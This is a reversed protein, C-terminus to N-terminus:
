ADTEAPLRQHLVVRFCTGDGPKSTVEMLGGHKKIIGYSISLGLGTGQGVPKTTFFPDFIRSLNEPAIGRGDDAVEIWVKEGEVGTRVTIHGHEEIAQGANVLLNMFVQNLQAPYCEIDPIGAYEKTVDAKYKLENWVVNLTADIGKELNAVEREARDIHSLDKLDQVIRKVRQLGDDSENLLHVVDSRLYVLDIEEKLRALELRVNQPLLQESSENKDELRMLGNVYDRLTRLNSSIFGLPNNIEHAVGAALQGISAMKEAQLLQAHANALKEILQAQASKENELAFNADTLEVTREAVKQELERHAVALRLRMDNLAAILVGIEDKHPYDILKPKLDDSDIKLNAISQALDTLPQSLRWSIAWYFILWLGATKIISNILIVVFSYKVREVVVARDSYITMKGLEHQERLGSQASSWLQVERMQYPALYSSSDATATNPIHGSSTIPKGNRDDIKVGTVISTQAIGKTLTWLLKHDYNWLADAVSSEFSRAVVNLDSAVTKSVSFYEVGLQICTVAVALVLYCGFVLKFIRGAINKVELAM